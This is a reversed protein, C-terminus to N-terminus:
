NKELNPFKKVIEKLFDNDYFNELVINPFPNANLYEDKKKEAIFNLDKYHKSLINLDIM